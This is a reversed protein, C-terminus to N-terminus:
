SSPTTRETITGSRPTSLDATLRIGRKDAVAEADLILAQVQHQALKLARILDFVVAGWMQVLEDGEFGRYPVPRDTLAARIVAAVQLRDLTPRSRLLNATFRNIKRPDDDPHFEQRALTEFVHRVVIFEAAPLLWNGEEDQLQRGHDVARSHNATLVALLWSGM